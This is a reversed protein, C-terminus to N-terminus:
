KDAREVRINTKYLRYQGVEALMPYRSLFQQNVGVTSIEAPSVLVYEVQYRRLLDEADPAGAYMRLIDAHRQSDDLGRSWMWGPYGLLSRRGTLFVPSNYTPAHLVVARPAAERAITQAMAVGPPDFEQNEEAGSIVRLVDLAGSLIMSMLAGAALWRWQSKQQLGRALVFAVLPASAVYWWFLVKINDWTWPAVNFLNPVIFCLAFPAYFQLTRKPLLDEQGPWFVALLLLPIFLGTNVWWFLVPNFSGHDWGPHWAVYKQLKVGGTRGLWLLQPLAVVMAVLAFLIWEKWFPRFILALCAAIGMVVLFTHAHVLPLLGAMLGAAIMRRSSPSSNLSPDESTCAIVNWWQCFICLALPMGFLISRQPVFLTTLANGWRLISDNLITYSHPLNGLLPILGHDSQHVDQLIWTWGLGGSLFVLLPVILGATRSRTLLLTWYHLLGALALAVTMSQIWMASIVGAGARMLMAALFDVMFPYAFRVGAFTPDEPPINKGLAFSNIVQLHLPLDGLNNQIGTFIGYPTQYVARSFVASLLIALTCYFACYVIARRNPRRIAAAIAQTAERAQFSVRERFERRLLLLCPALLLLAALSISAVTLGLGLALVFGTVALLPLGTAVGMCLRAAPPAGREYLFTLLTGSGAAILILLSAAVM